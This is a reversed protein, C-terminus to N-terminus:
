ALNSGPLPMMWNGTKRSLDLADSSRHWGPHWEVHPRDKISRWDGGWQMGLSKALYAIEDWFDDPDEPNYIWDLKGDVIPVYDVALGYPHWGYGPKANTITVDQKYGQERPARLGAALYLQKVADYPMRGRAYFAEQVALDRKTETVLITIKARECMKLWTRVLPQFEPHLASIDRVQGM